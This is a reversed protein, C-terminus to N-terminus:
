LHATYLTESLDLKPLADFGKIPLALEDSIPSDSTDSDLEGKKLVDGVRMERDVYVTARSDNREGKANFYEGVRDEWRCDVEVPEAYTRQGHHDTGAEQWWM